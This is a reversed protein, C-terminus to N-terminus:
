ELVSSFYVFPMNHEPTVVGLCGAAHNTGAKLKWSVTGDRQTILYTTTGNILDNLSGCTPDAFGFNTPSGDTTSTAHWDSNPTIIIAHWGTSDWTTHALVSHDEGVVRDPLADPQNIAVVQGGTTTYTWTPYFLGVIEWTLTARPQSHSSPSNPVFTTDPLVCLLVCNQGEPSTCTENYEECSRNAAPDTDLHFSLTAKLQQTTTVMVPLGASSTSLYAEGPQVITTSQLMNLALQIQHVLTARQTTPLNAISPDFTVLRVNEAPTLPTVSEYPCQDNTPSSPVSVICSLPKFPAAEWRIQHKGPSLQLPHDKGIVPLHMIQREDIFISGKPIAQIYFLNDGLTILATPTPTPGIFHNLIADRVPSLAVVIVIVLLMAIGINFLLGAKRRPPTPISPEPYTLPLPSSASSQEGPIYRADKPQGAGTNPHTSPQENDM